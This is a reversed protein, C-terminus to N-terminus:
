PAGSVTTMSIDEMKTFNTAGTFGGASRGATTSKVASRPAGTRWQCTITDKAALRFKRGSIFYMLFNISYNVYYIFNICAYFLVIVAYEEATDDRLRDFGRLLFYVDSPINLIL